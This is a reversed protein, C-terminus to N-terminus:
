GIEEGKQEEGRGREERKATEEARRLSERLADRGAQRAADYASNVEQGRDRAAQEQRRRGRRRLYERSEEDEDRIVDRAATSEAEYHPLFPFKVESFANDRYVAIRAGSRLEDLLWRLVRMAYRVTDARNGAQVATKLNELERFGEPTFDLQVRYKDPSRGM